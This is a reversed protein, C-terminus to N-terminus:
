AARADSVSQSDLYLTDPDFDINQPWTVTGHDAKALQFFGINQLPSFAPYGHYPRMDFRKIEGNKFALTLSHDANATVTSIRPNMAREEAFRNL